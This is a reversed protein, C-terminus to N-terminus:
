PVELVASGSIESGRIKKLAENARSLPFTSVETKIPIEAGLQLLERADERTMNAVSKVAREWYLHRYDMEPIPSMYIGATAVTGGRELVELAQPVIWGAPAFIVSANLRAPPEEQAEGVWEAGMKSALEKHGESRTFVYVECDWHKAIQIAMHASSGFGYLGLKEGEKIGSLKLARYGIVGGCLLPAVRSFSFNEPLPYTFDERAVMYQAYGGHRHLGTFRAERCLNELGRSCFSCHNCSSYLWAVGVRDGERFKETGEGLMDVEGVVQHGLIVPLRPLEIEGEVTHLDTHCAGCARVRVKVEGRGPEPKEVEEHELPSDEIGGPERLVMAEMSGM